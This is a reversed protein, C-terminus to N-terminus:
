NPENSFSVEIEDLHSVKVDIGVEIEFDHSSSLSHSDGLHNIEELLFEWEKLETIKIAGLFRKIM